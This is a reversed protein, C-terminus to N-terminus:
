GARSTPCERNRKWWASLPQESAHRKRTLDAALAADAERVVKVLQEDTLRSKRM